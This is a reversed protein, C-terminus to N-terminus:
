RSSSGVMPRCMASTSNSQLHQVPEHVFATRDDDDLVIEAEDGIGVVDHIDSRLGARFAPFDNRRCARPLQSSDRSGFRATRARPGGYSAGVIFTM